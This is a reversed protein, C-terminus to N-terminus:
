HTKKRKKVASMKFTRAPHQLSKWHSAGAATSKSLNQVQFLVRENTLQFIFM